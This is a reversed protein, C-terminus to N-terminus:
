TPFSRLFASNIFFDPVSCHIYYAVEQSSLIYLYANVIIQIQMVSCYIYVFSFNFHYGLPLGFPHPLLPPLHLCLCFCALKELMNEKYQKAKWLM